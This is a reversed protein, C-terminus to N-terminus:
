LILSSPLPRSSPSLSPHSVSYRGMVAVIITYYLISCETVIETRWEGNGKGWELDDRTEKQSFLLGVAVDLTLHKAEWSVGDSVHIVGLSHRCRVWEPIIVFELKLSYSEFDIVTYFMHSLYEM